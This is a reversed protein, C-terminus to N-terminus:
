GVDVAALTRGAPSVRVARQSPLVAAAVAKHGSGILGRLAEEDTKERALLAASANRQHSPDGPQVGLGDGPALAFQSL